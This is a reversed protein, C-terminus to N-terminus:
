PCPKTRCVQVESPLLHVQLREAQLTQGWLLPVHFDAQTSGLCASNLFRTKVIRGSGVFFCVGRPQLKLQFIWWFIRCSCRSGPLQPLFHPLNNSGGAGEKASHKKETFVLLRRATGTSKQVILAYQPSDASRSKGQLRLSIEGCM